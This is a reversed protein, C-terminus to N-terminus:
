SYWHEISHYLFYTAFFYNAFKLGLTSQDFNTESQEQEGEFFEFLKYTKKKESFVHSAELISTRKRMFPYITQSVTINLITEAFVNGGKSSGRM